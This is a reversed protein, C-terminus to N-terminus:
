YYYKTWYSNLSCYFNIIFGFDLVCIVDFGEKVIDPNIYFFNLIIASIIDVIHILIILIIICIIFTLTLEPTYKKGIKWAIKFNTPEKLLFKSTIGAVAAFVFSLALISIIPTVLFKLIAKLDTHTHVDYSLGLLILLNWVVLLIAMIIIPPNEKFLYLGKKYYGLMNM